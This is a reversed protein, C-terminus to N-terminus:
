LLEQKKINLSDVTKMLYEASIKRGSFYHLKVEALIKEIRLDIRKIQEEKSNKM